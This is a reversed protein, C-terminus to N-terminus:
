WRRGARADLITNSTLGLQDLWQDALTVQNETAAHILFTLDYNQFAVRVVPKNSGVLTDDRIVMRELDVLRTQNGQMKEVREGPTLAPDLMTQIAIARERELNELPGASVTTAFGISALCMALVTTKTTKNM